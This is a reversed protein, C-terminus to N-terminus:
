RAKKEKVPGRPIKNLVRSDFKRYARRIDRMLTGAFYDVEAEYREYLFPLTQLGVYGLYLFNLFSFYTGVVSLIYLSVIALFFLRPDRGCAIDLLIALTQNFRRHFVTAAERFTHEHLVIEPIRPPKWNFFDAGTCWIFFVLMATISIHCLLTVFNYDVVEFLFWVLSIGAMLAGSVARDRWLLVDAVRGGGLLARMPKQRRFLKSPVASVEDDSDSAYKPM